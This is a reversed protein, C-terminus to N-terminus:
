MKINIAILVFRIKIRWLDWGSLAFRIAKILTYAGHVYFKKIRM